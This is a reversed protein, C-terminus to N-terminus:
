RGALLIIDIAHAVGDAENTGTIFRAAERVQQPAQGMAIAVGAHAFMPLDNAMDGIAAVGTLSVGYAAALAIIGDGKNASLATFDLFYPQSLAVTAAGGCAQRARYALDALLARDDSVAVIKDVRATLGTLDAVITPEIGSSLRERPVRPHDPDRAFWRGDAFLWIEVGPRDILALAAAATAPALRVASRIRGDPDILTGGNFAGLPGALGLTAALATMGSPPRASILSAPIGAAALRAFAAVTAEALSKDHRVLTGDIDCVLLRIDAVAASMGASAM